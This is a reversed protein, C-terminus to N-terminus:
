VAAELVLKGAANLRAFDHACSPCENTGLLGGFRAVMSRGCFECDVNLELAAEGFPTLDADPVIM